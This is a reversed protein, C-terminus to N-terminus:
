SRSLIRSSRSAVLCSSSSSTLDLDSSSFSLLRSWASISLSLTSNELMLVPPPPPPPLVGGGRGVDQVVDEGPLPLLGEGLLPPLGQYLLSLGDGVGGDGVDNLLLVLDHLVM